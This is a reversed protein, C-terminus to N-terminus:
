SKLNIRAHDHVQELLDQSMRKGENSEEVVFSHFRPSKEQVEVPIMGDSGYVLNFPTKKM